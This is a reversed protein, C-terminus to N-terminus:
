QKNGVLARAIGRLRKAWYGETMFQDRGSKLLKLFDDVIALEVERADNPSFCEGFSGVAARRCVVTGNMDKEIELLGLKQLRTVLRYTLLHKGLLRGRDYSTMESIEEIAAELGKRRFSLLNERGRGDVARRFDDVVILGGVEIWDFYHALDRDVYGDVDIVLMYFPGDRDRDIFVDTTKGRHVNVWQEVGFRSLNERYSRLNLDTANQGHEKIGAPHPGKDYQHFQDVAQVTADRGSDALGAALAITSAGQGTGLEIISGQSRHGALRYYERYVAPSLMGGLQESLDEFFQRPRM